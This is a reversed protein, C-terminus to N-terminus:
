PSPSSGGTERGSMRIHKFPRGRLPAARPAAPRPVLVHERIYADVAAHSVRIPGASKGAFRHAMLQGFEIAYYVQRVSLKLMRAVQPVTFFSPVDPYPCSLIRDPTDLPM